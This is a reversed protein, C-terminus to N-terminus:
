AAPTYDSKSGLGFNRTSESISGTAGTPRWVAFYATASVVLSALFVNVALQWTIEVESPNIWLALVAVVGAGVANTVAKVAPSASDKTILAVVLPVFLSLLTAIATLDVVENSTM